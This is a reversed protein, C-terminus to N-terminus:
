NKQTFPTFQKKCFYRNHTSTLNRKTIAKSSCIHIVKEKSQANKSQCGIYCTSKGATICIKRHDSFSWRQALIEHRLTLCFLTVTRHLDATPAWSFLLMNWLDVTESQTCGQNKGGRHFCKVPKVKSLVIEWDVYSRKKLRTKEKLRHKDGRLFHRREWESENRRGRVETGWKPTLSLVVCATKISDTQEAPCLQLLMRKASVLSYVGILVTHLCLRINSILDWAHLTTILPEETQWHRVWVSVCIPIILTRNNSMVIYLPICTDGATTFVFPDKECSSSVGVWCKRDPHLLFWYRGM